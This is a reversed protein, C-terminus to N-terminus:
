TREGTRALAARAREGCDPSFQPHVMSPPSSVTGPRAALREMSGSLDANHYGFGGVDRNWWNKPDAYFRLAEVLGTEAAPSPQAELRALAARAKATATDIGLGEVVFSLANKWERSPIQRIAAHAEDAAPHDCAKRLSTHIAEGLQEQARELAEAAERLAAIVDADPAPFARAAKRAARSQETELAVAMDHGCEDCSGDKEDCSSQGYQKRRASCAKMRERHQEEESGEWHYESAGGVPASAPNSTTMDPPRGLNHVISAVGDIADM